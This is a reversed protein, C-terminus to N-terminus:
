RCQCFQGPHRPDRERWGIYYWVESLRVLGHHTAILAPHSAAKGDVDNLRRGEAKISANNDDKFYFTEYISHSIAYVESSMRWAYYFEVDNGFLEVDRVICDHLNSPCGDRSPFPYNTVFQQWELRRNLLQQHL